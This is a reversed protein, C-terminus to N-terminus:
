SDEQVVGAAFHGLGQAVSEPGAHALLRLFIPPSLFPLDLFNAKHSRISECRFRRRLARKPPSQIALLILSRDQPRVLRLLSRLARAVAARLIVAAM